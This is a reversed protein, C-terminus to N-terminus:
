PNTWTILTEASTTLFGRDSLEHNVERVRPQRVPYNKAPPREDVPRYQIQCLMTSRSWATSLTRAEPRLEDESVKAQDLVANSYQGLAHLVANSSEVAEVAEIKTVGFL